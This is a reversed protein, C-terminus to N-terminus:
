FHNTTAEEWRRRREAKETSGSRQEKKQRDTALKLTNWRFQSGWYRSIVISWIVKDSIKNLEDVSWVLAEYNTNWNPEKNTLDEDGTALQKSSRNM